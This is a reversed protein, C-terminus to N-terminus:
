QGPISYKPIASFIVMMGSVYKMMSKKVAMTVLCNLFKSTDNKAFLMNLLM